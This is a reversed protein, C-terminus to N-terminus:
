YLNIFTKAGLKGDVILLFLFVATECFNVINRINILILRLSVSLVIGLEKLEKKKEVPKIACGL